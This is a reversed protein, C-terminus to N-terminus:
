PAVYVSLRPNKDQLIYGLRDLEALVGAGGCEEITTDWVVPPRNQLRSELNPLPAWCTFFPDAAAYSGRLVALDGTVTFFVAKAQGLSQTLLQEDSRLSDAVERSVQMGAAVSNSPADVRTLALNHGFTFCAYLSIAVLPLTLPNEILRHSRTVAQIVCYVMVLGLPLSWWIHRGNITPVISVLCVLTLLGLVLWALVSTGRDRRLSVNWLGFGIGAIAATLGCIFFFVLARWSTWYTVILATDIKLRTALSLTALIGLGGVLSVMARQRRYQMRAMKRIAWLALIGVAVPIGYIPLMEALFRGLSLREGSFYSLPWIITDSVFPGVSQTMALVAVVVAAAFMYGAVVCLFLARGNRSLWILILSGVALAALILLGSSMRTFLTLGLAFGAGGFLIRSRGLRAREAWYWGRLALYTALVVFLTIVLSSWPRMPGGLWIDSVVVWTVAALFAGSYSVPSKSPRLRGLDAILFVTISIAAVTQLRVALAPPGPLTMFFGQIWPTVPGYVASVDRHLSLGSNFATAQAMMFGDHIRDYDLRAFVLLAVATLSALGYPALQRLRHSNSHTQEELVVM